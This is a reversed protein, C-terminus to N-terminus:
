NSLVAGQFTLGARRGSMEPAQTTTSTVLV